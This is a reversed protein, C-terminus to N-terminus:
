SEIKLRDRDEYTVGWGQMIFFMWRLRDLRFLHFSLLWITLEMYTFFGLAGGRAGRKIFRLVDVWLKMDQPLPRAHKDLLLTLLIRTYIGIHFHGVTGIANKYAANTLVVSWDETAFSQLYLNPREYGPPFLDDEGDGEAKSDGDKGDDTKKTSLFDVSPIKFGTALVVVDADIETEEGSDGPKSGRRRKNMWVGKPTLRLTDGRVYTVVGSRVHTLINSNVVPTSEFLGPRVPSLDELDRYHLKRILWEPIFSLPMERGFPQMSLMTDFVVNRPIIWKDDRALIV